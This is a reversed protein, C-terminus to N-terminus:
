FFHDNVRSGRIDCRFLGNTRKKIKGEVKLNESIKHAPCLDGYFLPVTATQTNYRAIKKKFWIEHRTRSHVCTAGTSRTESSPFGQQQSSIRFLLAVISAITRAFSVLCEKGAIQPQSNCMRWNRNSSFFIYIILKKIITNSHHKM